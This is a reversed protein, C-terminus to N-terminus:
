FVCWISQLFGSENTYGGWGGEGEVDGHRHAVKRQGNGDYLTFTDLYECNDVVWANKILDMSRLALSSNWTVAEPPVTRVLSWSRSPASLLGM